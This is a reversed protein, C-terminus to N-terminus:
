RAGIREVLMGFHGTEANLAYLHLGNEDVASPDPITSASCRTSMM